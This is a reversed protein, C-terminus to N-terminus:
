PLKQTASTPRKTKGPTPNTAGGGKAATPDKLAQLPPGLAAMMQRAQRVVEADGPHTELAIRCVELCGGKRLRRTVDGGSLAMNCIAWLGFQQVGAEHRHSLMANVVLTGGGAQAVLTGTDDSGALTLIAWCGQRQVKPSQIHQDMVATLAAMGAAELFRHRNDPSNHSLNTLATLAHLVVLDESCYAQLATSIAQMVGREGVRRRVADSGYALAGILQLVQSQIMPEAPFRLVAAAAAIDVGLRLCLAPNDGKQVLPRLARAARWLMFEDEAQEVLVKGLGEAGEAEETYRVRVKAAKQRFALREAAENAARAEAVAQQKDRTKSTTGAAGLLDDFSFKSSSSSSSSGNNNNSPSPSAPGLPPLDEGAQSEPGAGAAGAAEGRGKLVDELKIKLELIKEAAEAEAKDLEQSGEDVEKKLRGIAAEKNALLKDKAQVVKELAAAREGQQAAEERLELCRAELEERQALLREGAEASVSLEHQLRDIQLQVTEPLQAEEKAKLWGRTDKLEQELKNKQEILTSCTVRLKIFDLKIHQAGEQERKWRTLAQELRIELDGMEEQSQELQRSLQRNDTSSQRLEGKLTAVADDRLRIRQQLEPILTDAEQLSEKARHLSFELERVRDTLGSREASLDEIARESSSRLSSLESELGQCQEKLKDNEDGRQLLRDSVYELQEQLTQLASELGDARKYQDQWRRGEAQLMAYSNHIKHSLTKNTEAVLADVWRRAQVGVQSEGAPFRRSLPYFRDNGRLEDLEQCVEAATPRETPLYSLLANILGKFAPAAKIGAKLQQERDEIKPYQGTLMQVLLLGFSFIDLKESLRSHGALLEPATYAMAGPLGTSSRSNGGPRSSSSSPKFFRAQGLDAIKATNGHLLINKSSIDRHVIAPDHSHLYALGRAVDLSVDLVEPISLSLKHVELLDYLSCAMLETLVLTPRSTKADVCAGLFLVLNPHRLKALMDIERRLADVDDTLVLDESAATAHLRKCAVQCNRWTGVRVEGYAGRGLVEQSVRVESEPFVYALDDLVITKAVVDEAFRVSRGAGGEGASTEEM